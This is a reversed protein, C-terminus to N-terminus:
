QGIQHIIPPSPPLGVPLIPSTWLLDPGWGGTVGTALRARGSVRHVVGQDFQEFACFIAVVNNCNTLIVNDMQIDYTIPLVIDGNDTPSVIVNDDTYHTVAGWSIIRTFAHAEGLLLLLGVVMALVTAVKKM